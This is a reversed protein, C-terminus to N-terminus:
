AVLPLRQSTEPVSGERFIAYKLSWWACTWKLALMPMYNFAQQWFYGQQESAWAGVCLLLMSLLTRLECMQCILFIWIIQFSRSGRNGPTFIFNGLVIILAYPAKAWCTSCFKTSLVPSKVINEEQSDASEICTYRGTTMSVTRIERWKPGWKHDMLLMISPHHIWHLHGMLM